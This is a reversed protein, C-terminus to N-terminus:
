RRRAVVVLERGVRLQELLQTRRAEGLVQSLLRNVKYSNTLRLIGRDGGPAISSVHLIEFSGRLLRRLEAVSPWHRIQGRRQPDLQSSRNWVFPNQTMLAFIGGVRMLSAIKDIFRPQDRVHAITDASVVFDYPGALDLQEFDGARFELAPYRRRAEAISEPSLDVGTVRGFASLQDCLWGTGCGVDLIRRPESTSAAWARAVECQRQMFGDFRDVRYQRNWGDWFAVQEPESPGNIM